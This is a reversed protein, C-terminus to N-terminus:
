SARGAVLAKLKGHAGKPNFTRRAWPRFNLGHNTGSKKEARYRRRATRMTSVPSVM